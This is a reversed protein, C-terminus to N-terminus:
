NGSKGHSAGKLMDIQQQYKQLDAELGNRENMRDLWWRSMESIRGATQDAALNRYRDAAESSKRLRRLCGATQYEVWQSEAPELASRDIKEYTQLSLAYEGMAYLNDALGMRDIPGDIAAQGSSQLLEALANSNSVPNDESPRTAEDGTVTPSSVSADDTKNETDADLTTTQDDSEGGTPSVAPGNTSDPETSNKKAQARQTQILNQIQQLRAARQRAWEDVDGASSVSSAAAGASSYEASQQSAPSSNMLLTKLRRLLETQEDGTALPTTAGPTAVRSGSSAPPVSNPAPAIPLPTSTTQGANTLSPDPVANGPVPMLSGDSEQLSYSTASVLWAPKGKDVSAMKSAQRGTGIESQGSAMQALIVRNAEDPTPPLAHQSALRGQNKSTPSDLVVPTRKKWADQVLKDSAWASLPISMGVAFYVLVNLFRTTQELWRGCQIRM